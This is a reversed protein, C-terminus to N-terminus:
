QVFKFQFAQSFLIALNLETFLFILRGQWWAELGGHERCWCIHSLKAFYADLINYTSSCETLLEYGV